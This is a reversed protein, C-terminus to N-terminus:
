NTSIVCCCRKLKNAAMGTSDVYQVGNHNVQWYWDKDIYTMGIFLNHYAQWYRQWTVKSATKVSDPPLISYLAYLWKTVVDKSVYSQGKSILSATLLLIIIPLKM